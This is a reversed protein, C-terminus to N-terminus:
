NITEKVFGIIKQIVKEGTEEGNGNHIEHYYGDWQVFEFNPAHEYQKAMEISGNIDCIRDATGHMLLFPKDKGFGNDEIEGIELKTGIEYGELAAKTSIFGHVLPDSDYPKVYIPNGLDKEDCKSKILYHPMAKALVKIAKYAGKSVPRVLRIWPASVIFGDLDKNKDGRLRYDLVINGGMSHGYLILPVEPYNNKVYKILADIDKRVETRPAVDGRKGSSIGHGPLDMSVIKISEKALESAMRKYRGAYEGIGHIVIMIGLPKDCPFDYGVVKVPKRRLEFNKILQVVM